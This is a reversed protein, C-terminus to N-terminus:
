LRVVESGTGLYGNDNIYQGWTTQSLLPSFGKTTYSLVITFNSMTVRM